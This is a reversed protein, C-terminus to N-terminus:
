LEFAQAQALTVKFGAAHVHGGGGYEKAVASVDITSDHSSRLSFVRGNKTDYYTAAFLHDKALEHGVDSAHFGNANVAPVDLGGIRLTRVNRLLSKTRKEDQRVLANGVTVFHEFNRSFDKDLLTFNWTVPEFELSYLYANIARTDQLAFRWLDRDQIYMLLKPVQREPWCWMWTLVAGSMNLDFVKTLKPHELDTLDDIATKHHDIITVSRAVSLLSQMVDIPYSFDVIYVDRGTVDPIPDNYVGPWFEALPHKSYFATAAGQGDCCGAHYIVFKNVDCICEDDYTGGGASLCSPSHSNM